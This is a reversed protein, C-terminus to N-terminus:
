NILSEEFIDNWFDEWNEREWSYPRQFRPIEFYHSQFIFEVTRDQCQIKM